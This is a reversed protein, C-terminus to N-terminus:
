GVYEVDTGSFVWIGLSQRVPFLHAQTMWVRVEAPKGCDIWEEFAITRLGIM